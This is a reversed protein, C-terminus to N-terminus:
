TSGHECRSIPISVEIIFLNNRQHASVHWGQQNVIEQVIALGLGNGQSKHNPARYYPDFICQHEEPSLPAASNAIRIQLTNPRPNQLEVLIDQTTDLTYKYANELLNRIVMDFQTKPAHIQDIQATNRVSVRLPTGDLLHQQLEVIHKIESFADLSVCPEQDSQTSIRSYTLMRAVLHKSRQISTLLQALSLARDEETEATALNQAHLNLAALPTRLEHAAADTFRRERVLMEAVRQFLKNLSTILPTIEQPEIDLTVPTHDQPERQELTEALKNLPRFGAIVILNVVLLLLASGIFLPSSLILGVDRAIEDRVGAEEGVEIWINGSQLTFIHWKQGAVTREWFGEQLPGLREEPASSSRTLMVQDLNWVQFAVKTEYPHGAVDHTPKHSTSLASPQEIVLPNVISAHDIQRTLLSDLVRASTALRASFIEDTEHLAELYSITGALGMILILATILGSIIRKRISYSYRAKNM